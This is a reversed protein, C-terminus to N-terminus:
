LPIVLSVLIMLWLYYKMIVLEIFETVSGTFTTKNLDTELM